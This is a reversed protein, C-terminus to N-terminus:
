PSVTQATTQGCWWLARAGCWCGSVSQYTQTAHCGRKKSLAVGRGRLVAEAVPLRRHATVIVMRQRKVNPRWWCWTRFPLGGPSLQIGRRRSQRRRWRSNCEAGLFQGLFRGRHSSTTWIQQYQSHCFGTPAGVVKMTKSLLAGRASHYAEDSVCCARSCGRSTAWLAFGTGRWLLVGAGVPRSVHLLSLSIVLLARRAPPGGLPFSSRVDNHDHTMCAWAQLRAPAHMGSPLTRM